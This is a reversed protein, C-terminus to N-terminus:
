SLAYVSELCGKGIGPSPTSSGGCFFVFDNRIQPHEVRPRPVALEVSLGVGM